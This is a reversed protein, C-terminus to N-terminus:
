QKQDRNIKHNKRSSKKSNKVKNNYIVTHPEIILSYTSIHNIDLKLIEDIDTDM